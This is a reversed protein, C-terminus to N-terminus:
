RLVVMSKWCKHRKASKDLERHHHDPECDNESVRLLGIALDPSFCQFPWPVLDLRQSTISSIEYQNLDLM